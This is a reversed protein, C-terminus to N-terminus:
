SVDSPEKRIFHSRFMDNVTLVAVGAPLLRVSGISLSRRSLHQRIGELKERVSPTLQPFYLQDLAIETRPPLALRPVAEFLRPAIARPVYPAIVTLAKHIRQAGLFKAFQQDKETIFKVKLTRTM